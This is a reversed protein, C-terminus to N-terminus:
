IIPLVVHSDHKGGTHIEHFGINENSVTDLKVRDSEPYAMDHGSVRLMVGEGPAFVMGMPWLTIEVKVISGPSIAERRDHQYFIEQETSLEPVKTITHSVRLFGQPGLTKTM